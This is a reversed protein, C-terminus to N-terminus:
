IGFCWLCKRVCTTALWLEIAAIVFIQNGSKSSPSTIPRFLLVCTYSM